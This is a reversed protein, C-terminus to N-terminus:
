ASAEKVREEFLSLNDPSTEIDVVKEIGSGDLYNNLM